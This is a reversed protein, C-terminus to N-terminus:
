GGRRDKRRDSKNEEINIEEIRKKVGTIIGGRTRSKKKARVTNVNGYSYKSL